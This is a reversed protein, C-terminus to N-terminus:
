LHIQFTSIGMTLAKSRFQNNKKDKKDHVSIFLRLSHFYGAISFPLTFV